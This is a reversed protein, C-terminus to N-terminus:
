FSTPYFLLFLITFILEHKPVGTAKLFKVFYILGGLFALNAILIGFLFYRTQFLTFLLHILLPYLPFFAQEYAHYGFRSISLYHAGDFNALPLLFPPTLFYPRIIWKFPFTPNTKVLTFALYTIVIDVTRWVIFAMVVSRKM